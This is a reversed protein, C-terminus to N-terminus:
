HVRDLDLESVQGDVDIRVLDIRDAFKRFTPGGVHLHYELSAADAQVAVVTMQQHNRDRFFGYSLLRLVHADVFAAVRQMAAKFEELKGDRITSTDIYVLPQPM